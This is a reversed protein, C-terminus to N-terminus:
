RTRVPKWGGRALATLEECVPRRAPRAPDWPRGPATQSVARLRRVREVTLIADPSHGAVLSITETVYVTVFTLTTEKDAVKEGIKKSRCQHDDVMRAM